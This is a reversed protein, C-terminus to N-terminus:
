GRRYRAIVDAMREMFKERSFVQARAECAYRMGLAVQPSLTQVAAIIDGSSPDAPVLLGTEDPVITELLGGEAVGIVPKGAAMSEVPSMGFDEEIPIYITAICGAVLDRLQADTTWGTFRINPANGALARLENQQDGGSAIVLQKDPMGRFAEVILGIRKLPTLRATSLYYGQAPAWRFNATDVPPYVVMSDHGLYTKVRRRINESNAVIVDMRGVAREYASQFWPGITAMGIRRIPGSRRSLFAKQDYLFRPPTHCYFVNLGRDSPEPAAFPAAVGSFIRVPYNNARERELRFRQYLALPMMGKIAGLRAVALERHKAPFEGLGYSEPGRFGFILDADLGNALDLVLREGGGRIAFYDHYIATDAAGESAGAAKM